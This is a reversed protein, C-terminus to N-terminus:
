RMIAVNTSKKRRRIKIIRRAMILMLVTAVTMFVSAMITSIDSSFRTGLSICMSMVINRFVVVTSAGISAVHSATKLAKFISVPVLFASGACQLCMLFLLGNITWENHKFILDIFFLGFIMYIGTGIRRATRTGCLKIALRYAFTSLVYFVLPISTFIAINASNAGLLKACIFPCNTAFIMYGGAFLGPVLAQVVFLSNKMLARYESFMISLSFPTKPVVKSIEDDYNWFFIIGCFHAMALLLFSLRWSFLDMFIAGIFPSLIWALPQYLELVGLVVAKEKDVFKTNIINISSIYIVSAGLAQIFRMAIFLPLTDSMMCGFHGFVSLMLAPFTVKKNGYFNILPGSFIRGLFEGILHAVITMQILSSTAHLDAAMQQLCPIYISVAASTAVNLLLLLFTLRRRSVNKSFVTM